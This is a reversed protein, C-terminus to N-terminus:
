IKIIGKTKSTTARKGWALLESLKFQLSVFDSIRPAYKDSQSLAVGEILRTLESKNYKKLLNNCANRNTKINSRIEYGVIDHWIDFIENIEPKGFVQKDNVLVTDNDSDHVHDNVLVRTESSVSLDKVPSIEDTLLFKELVTDPIDAIERELTIATLKGKVPQVFSSAEALQIWGDHFNVLKKSTLQKKCIKVQDLNLGSRASLIRDSMKYIRGVGREPSTLLLLYVIKTDINLEYFEDDDWLNTKIMATKM